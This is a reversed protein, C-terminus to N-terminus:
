GAISAPFVVRLPYLGRVEGAVLAAEGGLVEGYEGGRPLYEGERRVCQAFVLALEHYVVGYDVGRLVVLGLEAGPRQPERLRLGVVLVGVAREYLAEGDAPAVRAAELQQHIQGAYLADGDLARRVM